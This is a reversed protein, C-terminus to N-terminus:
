IADLARDVLKRKGQIRTIRHVERIAMEFMSGVKGKM